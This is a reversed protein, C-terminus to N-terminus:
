SATSSIGALPEYADNRSSAGAARQIPSIRSPGGTPWAGSASPVGPRRLQPQDRPRDGHWPATTRRRTPRAHLLAASSRRRFNLANQLPLNVVNVDPTMWWETRDAPQAQRPRHSLRLPGLGRQRVPRRARDRASHDFRELVIGVYLTDLKAKAKARTEPSMWDLRDIRRGFAAVIDAVMKEAAAKSEPPFYRAAYLKGVADGLAGNTANGRAERESGPAPYRRATLRLARRRFGQLAPSARDIAHFAPYDQWVALLESAAFNVDTVASSALWSVAQDALGAAAPFRPWDLGPARGFDEARWRHHAKHVDLLDTRSVARRRDQEFGYIRAARAAADCFGGPRRGRCRARPLEGAARRSREDTALYNDRDPMGLGRPIYALNRQPADFDPSSVFVTPTSNTANLPDVDARLREGPLACGRATGSRRSRPSSRRSPARGEGRHGGRGYSAHLRRGELTARPPLPSEGAQRIARRGGTAEDALVAFSSRPAIPPIETRQVPATATAFFDDGPAVARDATPDIGAPRHRHRPPRACAPPSSRSPAFSLSACPTMIGSAAAPSFNGAARPPASGSPAAARRRAAAALADVMCPRSTVGIQQLVTMMDFYHRLWPDAAEFQYLEVANVTGAQRHRSDGVPRPTGTPGERAIEHWTTRFWCTRSREKLDSVGDDVRSANMM